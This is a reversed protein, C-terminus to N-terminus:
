GASCAVRRPEVNDRLADLGHKIVAHKIVQGGGNM